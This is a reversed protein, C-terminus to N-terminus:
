PLHLSGLIRVEEVVLRMDEPMPVEFRMHEGTIPHEFGLVAAHLAQRPMMELLKEFFHKRRGVNQGFRPQDGGYTRDGFVPFGKHAFHVRIQHTRGTELRVSMLSFVDIKEITKYHTVARKGAGDPVVANKKRDKPHRGIDTIITGDGPAGWVLAHYEREVSHVAFQAALKAHAQENRAVVLLGSTEKDLRHVIGPRIVEDDDQDWDSLEKAYHLVANVLTGTWNGFAPHVVMGAPKNIVLVDADEYVVDLPIDEATVEPPPPHPLTVEIQDGPQISYSPKVTKGNVLVHGAKIGEQVKSRTANAIQQTLYLDLRMPQQGPDVTFSYTANL